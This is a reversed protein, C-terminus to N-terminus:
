NDAVLVRERGEFRETVQDTKELFVFFDNFNGDIVNELSM